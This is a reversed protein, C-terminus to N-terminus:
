VEKEMYFLRWDPRKPNPSEGVHRFGRRQYLAVNRAMKTSTYLRVARLGAERALHEAHRLMWSGIGQGQAEAPVALSFVLLCDEEPEVVMLGATQGDKEVILVGGDEILPAYDEDMPTPRGGLIPVWAAYARETIDVVAALEDPRAVRATIL